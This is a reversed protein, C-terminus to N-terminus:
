YSGAKRLQESSGTKRATQKESVGSGLIFTVYEPCDVPIYNGRPRSEVITSM